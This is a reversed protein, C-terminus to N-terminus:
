LPAWLPIRPNLLLGIGAGTLLLLMEVATTIRLLVELTFLEGTPIPYVLLKRIDLSSGMSAMLVPILQWYLFCILLAAPLISRISELEDAKSLIIAAIGALFAFAGYWVLTLLGTFVLGLKNARPLHNRFTHWQAWVIAGAQNWAVL